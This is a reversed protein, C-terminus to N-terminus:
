LIATRGPQLHNCLWTEVPPMYWSATLHLPLLSWLFKPEPKQETVQQRHAETDKDTCHPCYWRKLTKNHNLALTHLARACHRASHCWYIHAMTTVLSASSFETHAPSTASAGSSFQSSTEVKLESATLNWKAGLIYARFMSFPPWLTSSPLPVELRVM